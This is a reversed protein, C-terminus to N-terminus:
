KTIAEITCGQVLGFEACTLGALPVDKKNHQLVFSGRVYRGCTKYLESTDGGANALVDHVEGHYLLKCELVTM